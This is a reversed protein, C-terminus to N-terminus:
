HISGGVMNCHAVEAIFMHALMEQCVCVCVGVSMCVGVGGCM